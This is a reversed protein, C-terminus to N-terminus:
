GKWSYFFVCLGGMNQLRKEFTVQERGWLISRNYALPDCNLQERQDFDLILIFPYLPIASQVGKPQLHQHMRLSADEALLWTVCSMGTWFVLWTSPFGVTSCNVDSCVNHSWWPEDVEFLPQDMNISMSWFTSIISTWGSIFRFHKCHNYSIRCEAWRKLGQWIKIFKVPM